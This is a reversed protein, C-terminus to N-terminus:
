APTATPTSISTEGYGPRPHDSKATFVIGQGSTGNAILSGNVGLAAGSAFYVIVGPDITLSAGTAVTIQSNVCYPSGILNWQQNTTINASINTTCTVNPAAAASSAMLGAFLLAIGAFALAVSAAPKWLAPIWTYRHKM